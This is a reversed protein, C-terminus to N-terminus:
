IRINHQEVISDSQCSVAFVTAIITVFNIFNKM